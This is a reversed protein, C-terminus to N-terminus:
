EDPPYFKWSGGRIQGGRGGRCLFSYERLLLVFYFLELSHSLSNRVPPPPPPFLPYLRLNKFFNILINTRLFIYALNIIKLFLLYLNNIIQRMTHDKILACTRVHMSKKMRWATMEEPCLQGPEDPGMGLSAHLSEQSHSRVRGSLETGFFSLM